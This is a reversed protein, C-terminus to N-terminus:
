SFLNIEMGLLLIASIIRHQGDVVIYKADNNPIVEDLFNATLLGEKGDNPMLTPTQILYGCDITDALKKANVRTVERNEVCFALTNINDKNIKILEM